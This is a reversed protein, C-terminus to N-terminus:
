GFRSVAGEILRRTYDHGPDGIVRDRPGADVVKGRSLIHIEPALHDALAIDGTLLVLSLGLDERLDSLRNVLSARAAPDLGRTFEHLILLRPHQLLARALAVRQRDAADLEDPVRERLAPSLGARDMAREIERVREGKERSGGGNAHAHILLRSVRLHAPLGGLEDSFLLPMLRRAKRRGRERMATLDRDELLVRGAAMPALGALALALPLTGDHNEGVIAVTQGPPVSFSVDDVLPPPDERTALPSRGRPRPSPVTLNEVVLLAM